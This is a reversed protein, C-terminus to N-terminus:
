ARLSGEPQPRLRFPDRRITPVSAHSGCSTIRPRARLGLWASRQKAAAPPCRKTPRSHERAALWAHPDSARAENRTVALKHALAEHISAADVWHTEPKRITAIRFGIGFFWHMAM